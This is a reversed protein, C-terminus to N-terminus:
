PWYGDPNFSVYAGKWGELKRKWVFLVKGRQGSDEESSKLTSELSYVGWVFAWDGAVIEETTLAFHHVRHEELLRRVWISVEERSSITPRGSPMVAVGSDLHAQVWKDLGGHTMARVFGTRIAGLQALDQQVNTSNGLESDTTVFGCASCFLLAAALPSFAFISHTRGLRM